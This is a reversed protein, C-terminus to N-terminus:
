RLGLLNIARSKEFVYYPPLMVSKNEEIIQEALRHMTETRCKARNSNNDGKREHSFYHQNKEGKNAIMPQKCCPCICDCNKGRDVKSIHVLRQTINSLAYTTDNDLNLHM